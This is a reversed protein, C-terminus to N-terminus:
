TSRSNGTWSSTFLFRSIEGIERGVGDGGNNVINWLSRLVSTVRRVKERKAFIWAEGSRSDRASEGAGNSERARTGTLTALSHTWHYMLPSAVSLWTQAVMEPWNM